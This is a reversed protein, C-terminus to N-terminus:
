LIFSKSRSGIFPTEVIEKSWPKSFLYYISFPSFLTLPNFIWCGEAAQNNKEKHWAEELDVKQINLHNLCFLIIFFTSSIGWDEIITGRGQSKASLCLLVLPLLISTEGRCHLGAGSPHAKEVSVRTISDRILLACCGAEQTARMGRFWDWRARGERSAPLSWPKTTATTAEILVALKKEDQKGDGMGWHQLSCLSKWPALWVNSRM